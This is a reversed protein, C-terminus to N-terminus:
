QRMAGTSRSTQRTIRVVEPQDDPNTQSHNRDPVVQREINFQDEPLFQEIFPLGPSYVFSGGPKLSELIRIYLGAYLRPKGHKYRHHFLFHNSFAMHSLITGWSAPRFDIDFWDAEKLHPSAEVLRDVGIAKIGIGRLYNVLTGNKGCGLDLVPELLDTARLGLLGLQFDPTYESCVVQKLIINEKIQWGNDQDFFRSINHSLDSFHNKVLATFDSEFDAYSQSEKLVIKMGQLYNQYLGILRQQEESDLHIYQNNNYTFELSSKVFVQALDLSYHSNDLIAIVGSRNEFMFALNEKELRTFDRDVEYVDLMSKRANVQYRRIVFDSLKHFLEPKPDSMM